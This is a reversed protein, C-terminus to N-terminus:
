FALGLPNAPRTERTAKSKPQRRGAKECPREEVCVSDKLSTAVAILKGDSRM